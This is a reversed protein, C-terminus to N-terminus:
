PLLLDNQAQALELRINLLEEIFNLFTKRAQASTEQHDVMDKGVGKKKGFM